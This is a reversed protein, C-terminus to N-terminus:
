TTLSFYMRLICPIRRTRRSESNMALRSKTVLVRVQGVSKFGWAFAVLGLVSYIYLSLQAASVGAGTLVSILGYVGAVKNLIQLWHLHM